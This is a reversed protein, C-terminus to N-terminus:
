ASSSRTGDILKLGLSAGCTTMRIPARRQPNSVKEIGSAQAMLTVSKAWQLWWTCCRKPRICGVNLYVDGM